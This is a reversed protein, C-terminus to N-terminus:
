MSLLAKKIREMCDVIVSKPSAVNIREYGNGEDGFIYGEDLAVKAVHVMAHELKTRDNCYKNVDIWVLYTGECTIVDAKPLNAKVFDEIYKINADIYERVQELWETGETYAAITAELGLPSFVFISMREVTFDKYRKQYDPNPIVLTSMQMGALNFTKSPATCVIIRDKYEPAIKLLPHFQIGVRTLDCHIEDSIIWKDYKKAIAVVKRLEEETWVRGVPNHPSCLIMGKNNPNAFQKDLDDFDMVYTNGQRILPNNAVVRKNGEIRLTFPYYVPRQIIIGDGEKTLINILFALAPVIGPSYFMDNPDISWGYRKSFWSQTADKIRNHDGAQMRDNNYFTYGFISRDIRKHLADLIPQACPFDMDAVWLSLIDKPAGEPLYEIKVASTGKRDIVKDFDYKM